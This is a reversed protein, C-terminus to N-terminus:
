LNWQENELGELKVKVTILKLASVNERVIVGGREKHLRTYKM